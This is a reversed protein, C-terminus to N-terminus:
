PSFLFGALEFTGLVQLIYQLKLFLSICFVISKLISLPFNKTNSFGFMIFYIFLFLNKKKQLWLTLHVPEYPPCDSHDCARHLFIQNYSM